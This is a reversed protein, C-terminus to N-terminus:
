RVDTAWWAVLRDSMYVWVVCCSLSSCQLHVDNWMGIGSFFWRVEDTRFKLKVYSFCLFLLLQSLFVNRGQSKVCLITFCEVHRNFWEERNVHFVAVSSTGTPRPTLPLPTSTPVPPMMEFRCVPCSSHKSLWLQLCASHFVHSCKDAHKSLSIQDNDQYDGLCIPCSVTFQDHQPRSQKSLESAHCSNNDNPAYKGEKKRGGARDKQRPSFTTTILAEQIQRTRTVFNQQFFHLAALDAWEKQTVANWDICFNYFWVANACIRLGLLGALTMWVFSGVDAVTTSTSTSRASSTPSPYLLFWTSTMNYTLLRVIRNTASSFTIWYVTWVAFFLIANELKVSGSGTPLSKRVCNKELFSCWSCLYRELWSRSTATAVLLLFNGHLLHLLSHTRQQSHWLFSAWRVVVPQRSFPERHRWTTMSMDKAKDVQSFRSMIKAIPVNTQGKTMSRSSRNTAALKVVSTVVVVLLPGVSLSRGRSKTNSSSDDRM